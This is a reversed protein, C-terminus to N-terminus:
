PSLPRWHIDFPALPNRIDTSTSRPIKELRLDMHQVQPSLHKSQYIPWYFVQHQKCFTRVAKINAVFALYLKAGDADDEDEDVAQREEEEWRKAWGLDDDHVGDGDRVERLRLFGVSLGRGPPGEGQRVIGEDGREFWPLHENTDM